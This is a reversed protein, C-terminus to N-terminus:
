MALMKIIYLLTFYASDKFKSCLIIHFEGRADNQRDCRSEVQKSQEFSIDVMLIPYPTGSIDSHLVCRDIKVSFLM